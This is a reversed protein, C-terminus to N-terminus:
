PSAIINKLLSTILNSAMSYQDTKRGDGEHMYKSRNVEIMLSKIRPELKYYKLPVYSGEFPSNDAVDWSLGKSINKSAEIINHPAHYKEYGLCIDPRELSADEYPLPKAPISHADNLM